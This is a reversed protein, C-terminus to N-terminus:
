MMSLNCYTCTYLRAEVNNRVRFRFRICACYGVIVVPNGEEEYVKVLSAIFLRPALFNSGRLNAACCEKYVTILVASSLIFCISVLKQELYFIAEEKYM